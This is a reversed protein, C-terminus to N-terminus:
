QRQFRDTNAHRARRRRGACFPKNSCKSISLAANGASAWLLGLKRREKAILLRNADLANGLAM